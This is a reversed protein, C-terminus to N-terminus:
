KGGKLQLGQAFSVDWQYLPIFCEATAGKRWCSAQLLAFEALCGLKRHRGHGSGPSILSTTGVWLGGRM